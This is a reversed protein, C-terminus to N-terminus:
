KFGEVLILDAGHADVQSWLLSRGDPSVAVGLFMRGNTKLLPKVKQTRLDLFALSLKDLESRAQTYYVGENTVAYSLGHSLDDLVLTEEGGTIPARWLETGVGPRRAYYLWRADPSEKANAGGNRTVQLTEGGGAPMKWVESRGTKDSNFYIWRGDRSWSPEGKSAPGDTLRRLSSGDQGVQYLDRRGERRSEFLIARGDPSWRPTGTQPGAMSTVQRPSSGDANVVWVEQSGSRTSMFAIADGSPSYDPLYDLRTSGILMEPEGGLGGPGRLQVRYSNVRIQNRSFVLRRSRPNYALNTADTGMAVPLRPTVSAGRPSTALRWAQREGLRSGLSLLLERGASAWTPSAALRNDFTLRQPPGAVALGPGLPLVYVDSDGYGRYRTFALTRGDPSLAPDSDEWEHEAASTLRRRDGNAASLLFLGPAEGRPADSVVLGQSDTTWALGSHEMEWVDPPGTVDALRREAGGLAPILYVGFPGPGRLFAIYRGDPSWAPSLDQAPDRTLRLPEGPGILKRYIDFNDEKEGNWAFAVENGDPSFTPQIELGPYATLPVAVLPIEVTSPTRRSLWIEAAAVAALVAIALGALALRSPARALPAPEVAGLKGSDSDERLQDLLTRVDDMHQFRRSQDKRMCHQILRELERPVGPAVESAPRPEEKLIAALASVKTEGSFARRGTVMEYLLSGFSFIDSRADIRQGQAQEPSMYAATGVVTGEDTAPKVDTAAEESTESEVLKALGFDLVKAVGDGTVMVNTPKLDRHVIGKAHAQALAGAIQSGLQLADRLPLGRRGIRDALTQGEVLEMAIFHVGAREDVDHITVIHPNNLASAARAEQVFRQRREPDSMRDQPLVKLAVFRGLRTDRAKYVVGMGGEGLKEVIEYHAVVRGVM